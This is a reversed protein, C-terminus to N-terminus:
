KNTCRNYNRKENIFRRIDIVVQNQYRCITVYYSDPIKFQQMYDCLSNNILNANSYHELRICDKGQRIEKECGMETLTLNAVIMVFVVFLAIWKFANKQTRFCDNSFNSNSYNYLSTEFDIDTDENRIITNSM